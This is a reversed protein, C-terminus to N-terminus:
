DVDIHLYTVHALNDFDGALRRKQLGLISGQALDDFRPLYQLHRQVAAINKAQHRHHGAHYGTSLGARRGGPRIRERPAVELNSAALGVLTSRENISCGDIGNVTIESRKHGGLIGDLLKTNLGVVETGFEAM